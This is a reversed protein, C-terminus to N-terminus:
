KGAQPRHVIQRMRVASYAVSLIYAPLYLWWAFPNPIGTNPPAPPEVPKQIINRWDWCFAAIMLLGCGLVITWDFWRWRIQVGKENYYIVLTGAIIMALAILVPTIVPGVWPLPVFFLLDWTMLGEPWRIAVWLWVYYFIDWVGFAIMFYSFKQWANKGAMCGVAVLMLMTAIERGFEVRMLHDVVLEGDEWQVVIPFYFSGSFYIERLYLVVASEV